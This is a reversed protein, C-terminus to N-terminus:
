DGSGNKVLRYTNPAVKEVKGENKGQVLYSVLSHKARQFGEGGPSVQFIRRVMENAHLASNAETLVKEIAVYLSTNAFQPLRPPMNPSRNGVEGVSSLRKVELHQADFLSLVPLSANMAEIEAQVLAECSSLFREYKTLETRLHEVKKRYIESRSKLEAVFGDSEM